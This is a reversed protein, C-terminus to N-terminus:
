STGGLYRYEHHTGFGLRGFLSLAPSNAQVV